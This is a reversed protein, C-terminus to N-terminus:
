ELLTSRVSLVVRPKKKGTQKVYYKVYLKREYTPQKDKFFVHDRRKSLKVKDKALLSGFGDLLAQYYALCAADSAFEKRASIVYDPPGSGIESVRASEDSFEAIDYELVIEEIGKRTMEYRKTHREWDKESLLPRFKEPAIKWLYMVSSFVKKGPSSNVAAAAYPGIDSPGSEVAALAFRPHIPLIAAVVAIMLLPHQSRYTTM